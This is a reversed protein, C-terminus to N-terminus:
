QYRWIDVKINSELTTEKFKWIPHAEDGGVSNTFHVRRRSHEAGPTKRYYKDKYMAKLVRLVMAGRSINEGEKEPDEMIGLVSCSQGVEFNWIAKAIEEPTRLDKKM